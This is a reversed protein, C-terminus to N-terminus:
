SAEKIQKNNQPCFHAVTSHINSHPINKRQVHFSNFTISFSYNWRWVIFNFNVKVFWSEVVRIKHVNMFLGVRLDLLEYV